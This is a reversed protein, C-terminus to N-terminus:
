IDCQFNNLAFSVSSIQIYIRRINLSVKRALVSLTGLGRLGSIVDKHNRAGRQRTSKRMVTRM